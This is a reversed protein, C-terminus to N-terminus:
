SDLNRKILKAIGKKGDVHVIDGDKFIKTANGTGVICPIDLERAVIAPHSTLGGYDTVVAGARHLASIFDVTTKLSILVMGDKAKAIDDHSFMTVVTGEYDRSSSAPFGSCILEEEGLNNSPTNHGDIIKRIDLSIQSEKDTISDINKGNKFVIINWEMRKKLEEKSVTGTGSVLEEIENPSHYYLTEKEVDFRSSIEDLVNDFFYTFRTVGYKKTDNLFGVQSVLQGLQIIENSLNFEKIVKKKKEQEDKDYDSYADVIKETEQKDKKYKEIRTYFENDGTVPGWYDFTKHRWAAIHDNIQSSNNSLAIRALESKERELFSLSEFGSLIKMIDHACAADAGLQTELSHALEKNLISESMYYTFDGYLQVQLFLSHFKKVIKGLDDNSCKKLTPIKEQFFFEGEKVVKQLENLCYVIHGPQHYIKEFMGQKVRDIDDKDVFYYAIGNHFLYVACSINVGHLPILDPHTHSEGWFNAYPKGTRVYSVIPNPLYSILKMNHKQLIMKIKWPMM